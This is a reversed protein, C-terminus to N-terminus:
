CGYCQDPLNGAVLSDTLTVPFPTYLGGGQATGGPTATLTNGTVTSHQLTLRVTPPGNSLSGNLVGGGQALGGPGGVATSNHGINTNHLTLVGFNGLGGGQVSASGATTTATAQNGSITSRCGHNRLITMRASARM